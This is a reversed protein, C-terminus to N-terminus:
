SQVERAQLMRDAVKYALQADIAYSDSENHPDLLIAQM